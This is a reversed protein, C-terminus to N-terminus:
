ISGTLVNSGAVTAVPRGAQARALALAAQGPALESGSLMAAFTDLIHHKAKEVVDPPLPRDKASAMNESLAVMVPSIAQARLRISPVAASGLALAGRAMVDRRSLVRSTM